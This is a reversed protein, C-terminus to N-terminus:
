SPPLALLNVAVKVMFGVESENQYSPGIGFSRRDLTAEGSMRKGANENELTFALEVPVVQGKLELTGKAAYGGEAEEIRAAFVAKPFQAADFFEAGLADGTVSGLTLSSIDIEVRVDGYDGGEAAEDFRIESSVRAFSGSVDSGFQSVVIQLSSEQVAWLGEGVPADGSAAVAEETVTAAAVGEPQHGPMGLFSAGAIVAAWIVGAVAVPARSEQAEPPRVHASVGFWMRALTGDRDIVAHKLAGAVHLVLSIMLVKTMVFHWSEFFHAVAASKPVFPLDDGFPLWVPAFGVTAAHGLWGSLPVLVLSGYLMWHVLEALFAEGKKDANLLGPKKQTLAWVIRLLAVFFVVIGLTKHISFLQAKQALQAGTEYPLRNAIVGLPFLALILLATLWHFVKTVFGYDSHTNELM